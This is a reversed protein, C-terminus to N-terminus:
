PRHRSAAARRRGGGDAVSRRCEQGTAAPGPGAQGPRLFRRGRPGAAGGAGSQREGLAGGGAALSGLHRFGSGPGAGRRGGGGHDKADAGTAAPGAHRLAPHNRVIPGAAAGISVDRASKGFIPEGIARLAQAFTEVDHHPPVFAVDYHIQAVRRYDRALFGALTVAMFRRMPADLRGMIGFDVAVLRGQADVFLNGPHM